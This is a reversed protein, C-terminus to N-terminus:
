DLERSLRLGVRRAVLTVVLVFAALLVGIAAGRERENTFTYELLLIALPRSQTNYLLV